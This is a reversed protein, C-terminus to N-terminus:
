ENWAGEIVMMEPGTMANSVIVGNKNFVLGAKVINSKNNVTASELEVGLFKTIEEREKPKIAPNVIAKKGFIVLNAGVTGVGAVSSKLVKFKLSELQKIVEEEFNPNVVVLDDKFCMNNGLANLRTKLIVLKLGKISSLTKKESENIIDPAFLFKNNGNLFISLVNSSYVNSVIIETQLEKKIIKKVEESTITPVITIEDTTYFFLGVNPNNYFNILQM